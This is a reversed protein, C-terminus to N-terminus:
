AGSTILQARRFCGLAHDNVLGSAQMHAYMITSGVFRFGRRKLDMSLADSEASRAPYDAQSRLRNLKVKGGVFSWLYDAFSGREAVLELYRRANNVASEVKLRNRIIGADGLLAEIRTADYAAIRQPDFDDFLRRYNERKGLVTYWSLGAQASELLLLEFMKRDDHVPVGWEQDHYSVYLPKGLDVWPCRQPSKM